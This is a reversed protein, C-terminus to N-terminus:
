LLHIKNLATMIGQLITTCNLLLLKMSSSPEFLFYSPNVVWTQHTWVYLCIIVSLNQVLKAKFSFLAIQRIKCLRPICHPTIIHLMVCVLTTQVIRCCKVWLCALILQVLEMWIWCIRDIQQSISIHLIVIYLKVVIRCLFALM